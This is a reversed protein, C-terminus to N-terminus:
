VASMGFLKQYMNNLKLVQERLQPIGDNNYILDDCLCLQIKRPMQVKLIAKVADANLGNRACVRQVLMSEDCDVFISRQILNLYRLTKFLLPVMVLVYDDTSQKVQQLMETYILPHLLSELQVRAQSDSFVLDRMRSRNLGVGATVFDAGFRRRIGDLAQGEPGTIAHAIADTDVVKVGIETFISAVLSKGSGILGTLGIVYQMAVM